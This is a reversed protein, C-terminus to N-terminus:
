EYEIKKTKGCVSCQFVKYNDDYTTVNIYKHHRDTCDFSKNSICIKDENLNINSYNKKLELHKFLENTSIKDWYSDQKMFRNVILLPINILYVEYLIKSLIIFLIIKMM